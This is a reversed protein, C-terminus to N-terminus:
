LSTRLDALLRFWINQIISNQYFAWFYQYSAWFTQKVFIFCNKQPFLAFMSVEPFNEGYKPTEWLNAKFFHLGFRRLWPINTWTKIIDFKTLLYLVMKEPFTPQSQFKAFLKKWQQLKRYIQKPTESFDWTKLFIWPSQM